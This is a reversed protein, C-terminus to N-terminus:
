AAKKNKLRKLRQEAKQEADTMWACNSRECNGEDRFRGLTTGEPREGLDALFNEFSGGVRPNWRDCVTIGRGGYHKWKPSEPNTVRQLMGEKQSKVLITM